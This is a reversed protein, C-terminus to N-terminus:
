KRLMKYANLAMTAGYVVAATETGQGKALAEGLVGTPYPLFTITLLLLM